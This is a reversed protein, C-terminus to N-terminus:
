EGKRGFEAVVQCAEEFDEDRLVWVESAFPLTGMIAAVSQNRVECPIDASELVSQM